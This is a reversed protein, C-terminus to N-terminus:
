GNAQFEPSSSILIEIQLLDFASNVWSDVEANSPNLRNLKEAYFRRVEVGRYEPSHLFTDAVLFRNGLQVASVQAAVEANSPNRRLLGTFLSEVFAADSGFLQRYETSGLQGRIPPEIPGGSQLLNVISNKGPADANRQLFQRYLLDVRRGLAESSRAIGNAVTEASQGNNLADVWISADTAVNFQPRRGLFDLYLAAVFATNGTLNNTAIVNANAAMDGQDFIVDEPNAVSFLNMQASIPGDVADASTV